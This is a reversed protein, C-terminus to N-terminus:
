SAGRVGGDEEAEDIVEELQERLTPEAARGLLRSVFQHIRGSSRSDSDDSRASSRQDEPM